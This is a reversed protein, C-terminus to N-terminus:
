PVCNSVAQPPTPPFPVLSWRPLTCVTCFPQGLLEPGGPNSNRNEPNGKESINKQLHTAWLHTNRPQQSSKLLKVISTHKPHFLLSWSNSFESVEHPIKTLLKFCKLSKAKQLMSTRTIIHCWASCFYDASFIQKSIDCIKNHVMYICKFCSKTIEALAKWVLHALYMFFLFIKLGYGWSWLTM